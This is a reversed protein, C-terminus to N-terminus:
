ITKNHRHQHWGYIYKNDRASFPLITLKPKVQELAYPLSLQDRQSGEQYEKWWLENLEKIIGNNRRIILSNETLPVKLEGYKAVVKSVTVFDELELAFCM